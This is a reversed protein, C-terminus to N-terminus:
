ISDIEPLDLGFLPIEYTKLMFSAFHEHLGFEIKVDVLGLRSCKANIRRFNLFAFLCLIYKKVM